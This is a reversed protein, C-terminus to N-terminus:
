NTRRALTLLGDDDATATYIARRGFGVLTEGVALRVQRVRRGDADVVDYLAGHAPGSRGPEVRLIWLEGNTRAVVSAYGARFAPRYEPWNQLPRLTTPSSPQVIAGNPLEVPTRILNAQMRRRREEEAQRDAASLRERVFPLPAAQRRSGDTEIFEVHYSDHRVIAIRGDPFVAWEDRPTLPNGGGVTISRQGGSSSMVTPVVRVTGMTDVRGNARDVRLIRATSATVRDREEVVEPQSEVYLRGQADTGRAAGLFNMGGALSGQPSLEPRFSNVAQGSPALLLYRQNSGDFLLTSDGSIAYLRQPLLYERPGRGTGALPTASERDFSVMQLSRERLDAVIVRGDPLERLQGFGLQSFAEPFTREVPPLTTENGARATQGEVPTAGVAVAGLAMAGLLGRM